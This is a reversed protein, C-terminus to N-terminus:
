AVKLQKTMQRGFEPNHRMEDIVVKGIQRRDVNLTIHIPGNTNSGSLAKSVAAAIMDVSSENSEIRSPGTFELEPGQEGVLRFGGPHYGGAEYGTIGSDKAIHKLVTHTGRTADVINKLRSSVNKAWWGASMGGFRAIRTVFYGDAARFSVKGSAEMKSLVDVNWATDTGLIDMLNEIEAKTFDGSVAMSTIINKQLEDDEPLMAMLDAISGSAADIDALFEYVVKSHWGYEDAILSMAEIQQELTYLNWDEYNTVMDVIAKTHWGDPAQKAAQQLTDMLSDFPLQEWYQYNTVFDLTLQSNWGVMGVIEALGSLFNAANTDLGSFDFNLPIGLDLFNATNTATSSTSGATSGTNSAIEGLLDRETKIQAYVGELDGKVTGVLEAYDGGYAGAFDMYKPLFSQLESAYKGPDDSTRMKEVLENYRNQMAEMSQVPAMSGFTLDNLMSDISSLAQDMSRAIERRANQAESHQTASQNAYNQEQELLSQGLSLMDNNLQEVSVGFANAMAQVGQTSAGMYRQLLAQGSAGSISSPAMGYKAALDINTAMGSSMGLTAIQQKTDNIANALSQQLAQVEINYAALAMAAIDTLRGQDDYLQGMEELDQRHEQYQQRLRYMQEEYDSMGATNIIDTFSDRMSDLQRQHAESLENSAGDLNETTEEATFGLTELVKTFREFEETSLANEINDMALDFQATFEDLSLDGSFYDGLLDQISGVEDFAASIISETFDKQASAIVAQKMQDQLNQTLGAQFDEFSLKELSANLGQQIAPTLIQMVQQLEKELQEFATARTAGQEILDAMRNLSDPIIRMTDMARLWTDLLAEEDKQISTFFDHNFINSIALEAEDLADLIMHDQNIGFPEAVGNLISKAESLGTYFGKDAQGKIAGVINEVGELSGLVAETMEGAYVELFASSLDNFLAEVGGGGEELYKQIDDVAEFEHYGGKKEIVDAISIGVTKEISEFMGEMYNVLANELEIEVAKDLYDRGEIDVTGLGDGIEAGHNGSYGGFAMWMKASKPKDDGGMLGGLVGGIVAGVITGIGPYGSGIKAGAYAGGAAGLGSTVGSYESQPLGLMGGLYTYGISGMMGYGGLQGYTMGPASTGVASPVVMSGGTATTMTATAGGSLGPVASSMWANWPMNAGGLTSFPIQGGGDSLRAVTAEGGPGFAGMMQGVIPIVVYKNAYYAAIQAFTDKFIDVIGDAFNQWADEGDDLM